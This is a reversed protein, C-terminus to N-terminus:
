ESKRKGISRLWTDLKRSSVRMHVPISDNTFNSKTSQNTSSIKGLNDQIKKDQGIHMLKILEKWADDAAYAIKNM